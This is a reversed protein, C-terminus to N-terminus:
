SFCKYTSYVISEGFENNKGEIKLFYMFAYTCIHTYTDLNIFSLGPLTCILNIIATREPSPGLTSPLLTLPSKLRMSYHKELFAYDRM